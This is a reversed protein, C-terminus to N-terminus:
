AATGSELAAILGDIGDLYLIECPRYGVVWLDHQVPFHFFDGPMLDFAEAERTAAKLRGSLVVGVIESRTGHRTRGNAAHSWRWGPGYNGKGVLHGGVVLLDLRGHEFHLTRQPTDFRVIADTRGAEPSPTQQLRDSHM